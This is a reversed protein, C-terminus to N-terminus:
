PTKRAEKGQALVRETFDLREQVEYLEQQVRAVEGELAQMRELPSQLTDQVETRIEDERRRHGIRQAWAWFGVALVVHAATHWAEGRAIAFGAGAFNLASLVLTVRHWTISTFKM